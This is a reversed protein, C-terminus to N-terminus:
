QAPWAPEGDEAKRIRSAMFFEDMHRLPAVVWTDHDGPLGAAKKFWAEWTERNRRATKWEEGILRSQETGVEHDFLPDHLVMLPQHTDCYDFYDWREGHSKPGYPLALTWVDMVCPGTGPDCDVPLVTKSLVVPASYDEIRSAINPISM